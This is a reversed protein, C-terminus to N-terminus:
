EIANLNDKSSPKAEQGSRRYISLVDSNVFGAENPTSELGLVTDRTASERRRFTHLLFSGQLYELSTCLKSYPRSMWWVIRSWLHFSVDSPQVCAWSPPRRRRERSRPVIAEVGSGCVATCAFSCFADEGSQGGVFEEDYAFLFIGPFVDELVVEAVRKFELALTESSRDCFLFGIRKWLCV